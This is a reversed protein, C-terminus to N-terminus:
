LHEVKAKSRGKKMTTRIAKPMMDYYFLPSRDAGNFGDVGDILEHM